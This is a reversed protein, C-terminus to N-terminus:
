GAMIGAGAQQVCTGQYPTRNDISLINDEVSLRIALGESKRDETLYAVGKSLYYAM